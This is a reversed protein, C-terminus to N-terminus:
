LRWGVWSVDEREGVSRSSRRGRFPGVFGVGLLRFGARPPAAAAPAPAAAEAGVRSRSRSDEM